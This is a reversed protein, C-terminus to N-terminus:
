VKGTDKGRVKDRDKDAVKVMDEKDVMGAGM